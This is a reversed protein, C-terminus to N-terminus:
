SFVGNIFVDIIKELVLFRGLPTTEYEALTGWSMKDAIHQAKLEQKLQERIEGIKEKFWTVDSPDVLVKGEENTDTAM